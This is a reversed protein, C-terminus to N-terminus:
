NESLLLTNETLDRSCTEEVTLPPPGESDTFCDSRSDPCEVITKDTKDDHSEDEEAATVVISHGGMIPSVPVTPPTIKGAKGLLYYTMLQGKGKVAVLGRQEFQYGFSQLIQCTEETVQICGVKGTSEMRSAVNVTNGWIDYHPKRAGIVGATIPGHNIGLKLVFHNFSQENISQLANKLELAFEVLLALHAWRMTIPDDSRVRRTPNLGSAAMYTSGITKIKIIDQFQPLELLADFDSIVENLFRLCELGQNNVTEESYFDSFNPMSAFLVGVEAYSQSYLEDHQRKRNGLFHEAVHPPLINYVLAENRRRMDTACVRQEEIENRWLFLVRAVQEMHRALFSLAFTATLLLISLTYKGKTLSSFHKRSEECDLVPGLVQINIFCHVLTILIMLASKYTYSLSAPLAATVLILVAFYSFYSPYMCAQNTEEVLSCNRLNPTSPTCAFTDIINVTALVVICTTALIRRMWMSKNICRCCKKFCSFIRMPVIESFAILSMTMLIINGCAFTMLSLLKRTLRPLVFFHSIGITLRVILFMLLTISSVSEIHHLYATELDQNRFSLTCFNTSKHLERHGDRNVLEKRLRMKFDESDQRSRMAVLQNGNQTEECKGATGDSVSDNIVCSDEEHLVGAGNQVELKVDSQFPKLVSVIFYTKLGAIRLSEERKEGYAPEVEFEGSLFSLTTASIHVRGALGSSEMKNALEVDKSYVDFQWQRQGLVGALVAGTHIGVRMDVPSNTTQQVY